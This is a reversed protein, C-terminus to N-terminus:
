KTHKIKKAIYFFSNPEMNVAVSGDSGVEPVVETYSCVSDTLHVISDVFSTQECKVTVRKPSVVNNDDTYRCVILGLNGAADKAAVAFVELDDKMVKIQTGLAALKSFAYFPYYGKMPRLTVSDFIGNMANPRADYYHALDVSSDQFALIMAMRHAAGKQVADGMEVRLTYLWDQTWGKVYNWETCYSKANRYGNDDMLKRTNRAREAIDYVTKGYGHWSFFDLPTGRKHANALFLKSYDEGGTTAPGGIMLDPFCKKLHKAAVDFFDFFEENTGGWCTPNNASNNNPENWIEWHRINWKKGNAWGENYHRVVHECIRAWKLSDKPPHIYYKKIGHEISQGLRYFVESGADRINGLYQDTYTFDYSAPDDVDKDIDPFVASIDVTHWKGYSSCYVSDHTRVSPIRAATFTDFNGRCQDARARVPGNNVGHVPKIPGLEVSADIAVIAAPIECKKGTFVAADPNTGWPRNRMKKWIANELGRWNGLMNMGYFDKLVNQHAIRYDVLEQAAKALRSADKARAADFFRWTLVYHRAFVVLDQVRKAAMPDSFSKAAAKELRAVDALLEAETHFRTQFKAMETDDLMIGKRAEANVQERRAEYRKRIDAYYAAVEDKAEGFSSCFEDMFMEFSGEPEAIMRCTVYNEPRLPYRGFDSDFDVGVLGHRCCYAYVDYVYKEVGRPLVGYACHFNPRLFFRKLGAKAWNALFSRIDDTFTPVIGFCMNEPYEIRERRPPFRYSSYIYTVLQVDPRIKRAKEALRNWFWLYRDTKNLNFDEGPLDADLEKCGKCVCYNFGDNECVNLYKPTGAVKWDALIQEIVDPNSVCLKTTTPNQWKVGVRSGDDRLSLYEPHTKEFRKQWQTFAHGYAFNERSYLRHRRHWVEVEEVRAMAQKESWQLPRPIDKQYEMICSLPVSRFVGKDYRPEFTDRVGEAFELESRKPIFVGDEGPYAWVVGLRKALFGYVAYLTGPYAGSDDGWFYIVNGRRESLSAFASPPETGDPSRALVFRLKGNDVTKQGTARELAEVLERAALRQSECPKKPLEVTYESLALAALCLFTM